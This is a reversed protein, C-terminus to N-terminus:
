KRESEDNKTMVTIRDGKSDPQIDRLISAIGSQHQDPPSSALSLHELHLESALWVGM